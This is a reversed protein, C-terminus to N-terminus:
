AKAAGKAAGPGATTATSASTWASTSTSTDTSLATSYATSTPTVDRAVIRTSGSLPSRQPSRQMRRRTKRHMSAGLEAWRDPGRQTWRHECHLCESLRLTGLQVVEDGSVRTSGCVPCSPLTRGRVSPTSANAVSGFRERAWDVPAELPAPATALVKEVRERERANREALRQRDRASALRTQFRRPVPSPSHLSGPIHAPASRHLATRSHFPAPASHSASHSSTANSADSGNSSSAARVRSGGRRRDAEPHIVARDGNGASSRRNTTKM